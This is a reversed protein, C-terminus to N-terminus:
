VRERCSARGIKPKVMTASPVERGSSKVDTEAAILPFASIAIPFITPLLIKLIRNTTPVVANIVGTTKSLLKRISVKIAKPAPRSKSKHTILLFFSTLHCPITM